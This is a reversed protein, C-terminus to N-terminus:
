VTQGESKWQRIQASSFQQADIVIIDYADMKENADALKESDVGLFVGFRPANNQATEQACITM